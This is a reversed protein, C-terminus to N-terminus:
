AASTQPRSALIPVTGIGLTARPLPTNMGGTNSQDSQRLTVEFGGQFSHHGSDLQAHRCIADAPEQIARRPSASRPAYHGSRSGSDIIFCSRRRDQPFTALAEQSLHPQNVTDGAGDYCCCIM